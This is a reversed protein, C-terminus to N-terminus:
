TIYNCFLYLQQQSETEHISKYQLPVLVMRKCKEEVSLVITISRIPEGTLNQFAMHGLIPKPEKWSFLIWSAKRFNIPLQNFTVKCRKQGSIKTPIGARVCTFVPFLEPPPTVPPLRVASVNRGADKQLHSPLFVDEQYVKIGHAATWDPVWNHSFLVSGVLYCTGSSHGERDWALMGLQWVRHPWARAHVTELWVMQLQKNWRTWVASLARHCCPLLAGSNQNLPISVWLASITLVEWISLLFFPEAHPWQKRLPGLSRYAEGFGGEM